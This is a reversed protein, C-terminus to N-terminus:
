QKVEIRTLTSNERIATTVAAKKRGKILSHSENPTFPDDKIPPVPDHLFQQVWESIIQGEQKPNKPNRIADCVSIAIVISKGHIVQPSLEPTKQFKMWDCSLEPDNFISLPIETQGEPFIDPRAYRYLTEGDLIEM